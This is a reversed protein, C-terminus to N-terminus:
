TFGKNFKTNAYLNLAQGMFTKKIFFNNFNIIIFNNM